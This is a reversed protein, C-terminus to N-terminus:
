SESYLLGPPPCDKYDMPLRLPEMRFLLDNAALVEVVGEIENRNTIHLDAVNHFDDLAAILASENVGERALSLVLRALPPLHVIQLEGDRRLYFAFTQKYSNISEKGNVPTWFFEDSVVTPNSYLKYPELNSVYSVVTNFAFRFKSKITEWKIYDATVVDWFSQMPLYHALFELFDEITGQHRQYVPRGRGINKRDIWQSWSTVLDIPQLGKVHLTVMLDRLANIIPFFEESARIVSVDLGNYSALRSYRSFIDFHKEMMLRNKSHEEESLPFDLFNTDFWLTSKIAEYHASGRYPAFGFLHVTSKPLKLFQFAEELTGRLSESSENPLGAIFGVTVEIGSDVTEKIIRRAEGLDLNKSIAAQMEPTGTEVGFYINRCGARQLWYIQEEDITDTRSSCTWTVNLRSETLQKCFDIVWNRDTTFLDHTFNFDTRGYTDKIYSLERMIRSPSKIRHKRKWYPATFCFNCKFPCGRGIELYIIDDQALDCLSFAPWPLTDLDSILPIENTIKINSGERYSLNSVEHMSRGSSLAELLMQFSLEGEGRLILDIESFEKLTEFHTATAQVGGLLTLTLPKAAKLSECIRLTHHYSDCDTMLGILDPSYELIWEAVQYYFFSNLQFRDSNIAKNIDLINIEVGTPRTGALSLLGMPVFKQAYYIKGRQGSEEIRRQSHDVGGHFATHDLHPSTLLLVKM